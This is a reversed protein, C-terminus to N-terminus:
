MLCNFTYICKTNKLVEEAMFGHFEDLADSPSGVARPAIFKAGSILYRNVTITRCIFTAVPVSFIGLWDIGRCFELM